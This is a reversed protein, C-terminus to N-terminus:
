EAEPDQEIQSFEKNVQMSERRVLLSAQRLQHARQAQEAEANMREIAERIYDTQSIHMAQAKAKMAAYLKDNLRVSVMTM